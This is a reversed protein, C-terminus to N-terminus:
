NHNVQGFAILFVAYITKDQWKQDGVKRMFGTYTPINHKTFRNPQFEFEPDTLLRKIINTVSRRRNTIWHICDLALM